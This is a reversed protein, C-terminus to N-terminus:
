QGRVAAAKRAILNYGKARAEKEFSVLQTRATAPHNIEFDIEYLALQADFQYLPYGFKRAEGVVSVLKSRAEDPKGLGSRHARCRHGGYTARRSWQDGRSRSPASHPQKQRPYSTKPWCAQALVSYAHGRIRVRPNTGNFYRTTDGALKEAEPGM